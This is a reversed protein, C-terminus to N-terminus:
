LVLPPRPPQPPRQYEAPCPSSRWDDAERPVFNGPYRDIFIVFISGSTRGSRTTIVWLVVHSGRLRILRSAKCDHSMDQHFVVSKQRELLGIFDEAIRALVVAFNRTAMVVAEGEPDPSRASIMDAM